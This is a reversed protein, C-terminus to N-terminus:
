IIIEHQDRDDFYDERVNTTLMLSILWFLSANLSVFAGGGLLGTKATPCEYDLNSHINRSHHLQETITPWLLFIAAFISNAVSIFFFSTCWSSGFIAARPVSKGKYPYFLSQYGVITASSLLAFSAYGLFVSPDSPYRCIVVDKGTIVEGAPPKKMEALVGLIFSACGLIAVVVAYQVPTVAM